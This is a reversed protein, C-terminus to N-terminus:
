KIKKYNVSCLVFVFSFPSHLFLRLSGFNFILLMFCVEKLRILVVARITDYIDKQIRIVGGRRALRSCIPYFTSVTLVECWKTEKGKNEFVIKQLRSLVNQGVCLLSGCKCAKM